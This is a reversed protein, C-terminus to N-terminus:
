AVGYKLSRSSATTALWNPAFLEAAMLAVNPPTLTLILTPTKTLSVVPTIVSQSILGVCKAANPQGGHAVTAAPQTATGGGM